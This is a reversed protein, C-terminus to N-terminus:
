TRFAELALRFSRSNTMAATYALPRCNRLHFLRDSILRATQMLMRGELSSIEGPNVSKTTKQKGRHRIQIQTYYIWAYTEREPVTYWAYSMVAFVCLLAYPKCYM